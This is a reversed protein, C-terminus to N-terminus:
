EISSRIYSTDKIKLVEWDYFAGATGTIEVQEGVFDALDRTSGSELVLMKYTTNGQDNKTYFVAPIGGSICRIACSRHPKGHGPKMVGFFCKADLIEGTISTESGYQVQELSTMKTPPSDSSIKIDQPDSIELLAKGDYYILFGKAEVWSGSYEDALEMGGIKGFQVIPITQLLPTGKHDNELFVQIAPVPERILLGSIETQQYYEYTSNIFGKQNVGLMWALTGVVLLLVVITPKVFKSVGKPARQQYGIYFEDSM